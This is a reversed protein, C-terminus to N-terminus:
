SHFMRLYATTFVAPFILSDLRDLLGGHGPLLSGSDKVASLRKLWSEFLDGIQGLVALALSLLLIELWSFEKFALAAGALGVSVAGLFYGWVGAVTKGPSLALALKRKGFRRGIFYAGSDGAMIVFLLWGMWERGDPRRFLLVVFPILYGVYLAGLLTRLLPNVRASLKDHFFLGASFVLVLAAGFYEIAASHGSLLVTLAMAVGFASGALKQQWARPFTMAFYEYLAGVTLIFFFTAFLWPPGWAILWLLLPIGVIATAIRAKLNADM